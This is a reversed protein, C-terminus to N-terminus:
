EIGGAHLNIRVLGLISLDEGVRTMEGTLGKM